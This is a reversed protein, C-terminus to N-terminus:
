TDDPKDLEQMRRNVFDLPSPDPKDLAVTFDPPAAGKGAPKPAARKGGKAPKRAMDDEAQWGGAM